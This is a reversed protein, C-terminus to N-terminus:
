RVVAFPMEAYSDGSLKFAKVECNLPDIVLACHYSQDFLSQQTRLDTRSLFCTHGPHSHYWGVVVYDFGAGDLERFLKPLSRPDFRVKASTNKLDTTGVDRALVYPMGDWSRVEGLMLGM